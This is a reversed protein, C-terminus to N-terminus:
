AGSSVGRVIGLHGVDEGSKDCERIVGRGTGEGPVHRPQEESVHSGRVSPALVPGAPGLPHREPM